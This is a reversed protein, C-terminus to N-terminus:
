FPLEEEDGAADDYSADDYSADEFFPPEGNEPTPAPAGPRQYNERLTTVELEASDLLQNCRQVLKMGQEFQATADGLTLGGAEMKEAIEALQRFADEFSLEDSSGTAGSPNADSSSM